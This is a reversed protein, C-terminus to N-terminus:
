PESTGPEFQASAYAVTRCYQVYVCLYFACIESGVATAMLLRFHTESLQFSLEPQAAGRRLLGLSSGM